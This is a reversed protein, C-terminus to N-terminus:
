EAGSVRGSVDVGRCHNIGELATQEHPVPAVIGCNRLREREPDLSSAGASASNSTVAIVDRASRCPHELLSRRMHAVDRGDQPLGRSYQVADVRTIFSFWLTSIFDHTKPEPRYGLNRGRLRTTSIMRSPRATTGDSALRWACSAPFLPPKTEM